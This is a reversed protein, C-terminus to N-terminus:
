NSAKVIQDSFDASEKKKQAHEKSLQDYLKARENAQIEMQEFSQHEKALKEKFEAIQQTLKNESIEKESKLNILEAKIQNLSYEIENGNEEKQNILSSM